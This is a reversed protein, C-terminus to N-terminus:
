GKVCVCEYEVNMNMCEPPATQAETDQELIRQCAAPHSVQMVCSGYSFGIYGLM